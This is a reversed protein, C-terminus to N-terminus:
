SRVRSKYMGRRHDYAINIEKSMELGAPNLDPHFAKMLTKYQVRLDASTAPLRAIGLADLAQRTQASIGDIGESESQDGRLYAFLDGFASEYSLINREILLKLITESSFRGLVPYDFEKERTFVEVIKETIRQIDFYYDRYVKLASEHRKFRGLMQQYTDVDPSHMALESDFQDYFLAAIEGMDDSDLFAGAHNLEREWNRSDVSSLLPVLLQITAPTILKPIYSGYKPAAQYLIRYCDVLPIDLLRSATEFTLEWTGRDMVQTNITDLLSLLRRQSADNM